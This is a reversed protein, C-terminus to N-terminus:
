IETELQLQLRDRVRDLLWSKDSACAYADEIRVRDACVHEFMSHDLSHGSGGGDLRMLRDLQDLNGSRLVDRVPDDVLLLETAPVVPQQGLAPMVMRVSIARLVSALTARVRAVDYEPYFCLIREIAAVV